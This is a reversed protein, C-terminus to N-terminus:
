VRAKSLRVTTGSPEVYLEVTDMLAAMLPFGRGGETRPAAPAVFTGSDSVALTMREGDDLVSLHIHGREDPCGHRIANTVAENFACVVDDCYEEDFGFSVSAVRAFERARALESASAALRLKRTVRASAQEVTARV